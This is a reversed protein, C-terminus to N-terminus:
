TPHVLQPVRDFLTSRHGRPQRQRAIRRLLAGEEPQECDRQEGGAGGDVPVREYVHNLRWHDQIPPARPRLSRPFPKLRTPPQVHEYLRGCQANSECVMSTVIVLTIFLGVELSTM